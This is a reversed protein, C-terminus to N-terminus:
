HDNGETKITKMNRSEFTLNVSRLGSPRTRHKTNKPITVLQNPFLEITGDVLDIFISGEIILFTEDSNPHLHWYFPETMISVRVVHDNVLALPFNAYDPIQETQELINIITFPPTDM